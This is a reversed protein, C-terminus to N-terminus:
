KELYEKLGQLGGVYVLKHNKDVYVYTPFSDVRFHALLPDDRKIVVNPWSIKEKKIYRKLARPEDLAFGVMNM